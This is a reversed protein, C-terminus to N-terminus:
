AKEATEGTRAGHPADQSTKRPRDQRTFGYKQRTQAAAAAREQTAQRRQREKEPDTLRPARNGAAYGCRWAHVIASYILGDLGRAQPDAYVAARLRTLDDLTLFDDPRTDKLDQERITKKM